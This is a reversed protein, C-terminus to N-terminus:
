PRCGVPVAPVALRLCGAMSNGFASLPEKAVQCVSQFACLLTVDILLAGLHELLCIQEFQTPGLVAGLSAWM